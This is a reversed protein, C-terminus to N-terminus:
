VSRRARTLALLWSSLLKCSRVGLAVLHRHRVQEGLQFLHRFVLFLFIATDGTRKRFEEQGETQEQRQALSSKSHRFRLREANTM